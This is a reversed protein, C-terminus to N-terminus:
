ISKSLFHMAITLRVASQGIITRLILNQAPFYPDRGCTARWAGSSSMPIDWGSGRDQIPEPQARRFGHFHQGRVLRKERGIHKVLVCMYRKTCSAHRRQNPTVSEGHLHESSVINSQLHHSHEISASHASTKSAADLLM